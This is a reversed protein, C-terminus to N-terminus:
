LHMYTLKRTYICFMWLEPHIDFYLVSLNSPILGTILSHALEEGSQQFRRSLNQLHTRSLYKSIKPCNVHLDISVM